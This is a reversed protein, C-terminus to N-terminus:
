PESTSELTKNHRQIISCSIAFIHCISTHHVFILRNKFRQRWFFFTWINAVDIQPNAIRASDRSPLVIDVSGMLFLAECSAKKNDCITSWSCKSTTKGEVFRRSVSLRLKYLEEAFDSMIFHLSVSDNLDVHPAGFIEHEFMTWAFRSLPLGVGVWFCVGKGFLEM